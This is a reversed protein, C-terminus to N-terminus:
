PTKAGFLRNRLCTVRFASELTVVTLLLFTAQGVVSRWSQNESRCFRCVHWGHCRCPRFSQFTYKVDVDYSATLKATGDVDNGTDFVWCDNLSYQTMQLIVVCRRLGSGM